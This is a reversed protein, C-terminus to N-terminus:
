WPSEKAPCMPFKVPLVSFLPVTPAKSLYHQYLKCGKPPHQDSQPFATDNPGHGGDEEDVNGRQRLYIYFFVGMRRVQAGGAVERLKAM